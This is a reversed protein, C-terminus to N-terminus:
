LMFQAIFQKQPCYDRQWTIKFTFTESKCGEIFLHIVLNHIWILKSLGVSVAFYSAHLFYRRHLYRSLSLDPSFMLKGPHDVSRWMLGIM